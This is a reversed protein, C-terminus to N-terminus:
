HIHQHQDMIWCTKHQIFYSTFSLNTSYAARFDKLVECSTRSWESHVTWQIPIFVQAIHGRSYRYMYMILKYTFDLSKDLTAHCTQYTYTIYLPVRGQLCGQLATVQSLASVKSPGPHWTWLSAYLCIGQFASVKSNRLTSVLSPGLPMVAM